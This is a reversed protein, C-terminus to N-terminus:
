RRVVVRVAEAQRVALGVVAAVEVGAGVRDGLDHRGAPIQGARRAGVARIGAEIPRDAPSVTVQVNLLVLRPVIMTSFCVLGSPAVPM